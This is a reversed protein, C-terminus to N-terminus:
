PLNEFKKLVKKMPVYIPYVLMGMFFNSVGHIIDYPIGAIIWSIMGKFNLGFVLAQFPAYLTGYIFGHLSCVAVCCISVVDSSKNRPILMAMGWLIPWLYFYPVWWTNFGCLIGELIIFIFVPILAKFRFLLTYLVTLMALIHVNPFAEMVQKSAFM